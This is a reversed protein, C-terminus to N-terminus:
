SELSRSSGMLQHIASLIDPHYAFVQDVEAEPVWVIGQHYAADQVVVPAIPEVEGCYFWTRCAYLKGDWHFDYERVCESNPLVRIRYGTEEFSERKAAELRSEGPDIAGGPLFVYKVQTTPDTGRFALIRGQDRILVSVRERWIKM